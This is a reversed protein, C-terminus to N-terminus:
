LGYCALVKQIIEASVKQVIETVMAADPKPRAGSQGAGTNVPEGFSVSRKRSQMSQNSRSRGRGRKTPTPGGQFNLKENAGNVLPTVAVGMSSNTFRGVGGGPTPHREHGPFNWNHSRVPTTPMTTSNSRINNSKAQRNALFKARTPCGIWFALHGGKCNVCYKINPKTKCIGPRHPGECHLCRFNNRCVNAKHGWMQCKHCIPVWESTQKVQIKFRQRYILIGNETMKDVNGNKVIIVVTQSPVKSGNQLNKMTRDVLIPEVQYQNKISLNIVDNGIDTDIGTILLKSYGEPVQGVQNNKSDKYHQESMFQIDPGIKRGWILNNQRIENSNLFELYDAHTTPRIKRTTPGVMVHEYVCKQGFIGYLGNIFRNASSCIEKPIGTVYVLNNYSAKVQKNGPSVKKIITAYSVGPGENKKQGDDSPSKVGGDAVIQAPAPASVVTNPVASNGLVNQTSDSSQIQPSGSPSSTTRTRKRPDKSGQNDPRGSKPGRNYLLEQMNSNSTQLVLIQDTLKKNEAILSSNEAKLRSLDMKLGDLKGVSQDEASLSAVKNKLLSNERDLKQIQADQAAYLDQSLSHEGLSRTLEQIKAELKNANEAHSAIIEDKHAIAHKLEAVQEETNAPNSAQLEQYQQLDLTCKNLESKLREVKSNRQEIIQVLDGEHQKLTCLKIAVEDPHVERIWKQWQFSSNLAARFGLTHAVDKDSHTM